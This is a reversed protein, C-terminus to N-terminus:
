SVFGVVWFTEQSRSGSKLKRRSREPYKDSKGRSQGRLQKTAMALLLSQPLKPKLVYLLKANLAKCLEPVPRQLLSGSM